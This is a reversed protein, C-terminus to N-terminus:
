ALCEYTTIKYHFVNKQGSTLLLDELEALLLLAQHGAHTAEAHNLFFAAYCTVDLKLCLAEVSPHVGEGFLDVASLLKVSRSSYCGSYLTGLICCQAAFELLNPLSHNKYGEM